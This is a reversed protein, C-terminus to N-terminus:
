VALEVSLVFPAVMFNPTSPRFPLFPLMVWDAEAHISLFKRLIKELAHSM